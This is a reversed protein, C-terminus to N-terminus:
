VPEFPSIYLPAKSRESLQDKFNRYLDAMHEQAPVRSSGGGALDDQMKAKYIVYSTILEEFLPSVGADLTDASSVLIQPYATYELILGGTESFGPIPRLVLNNGRLYYYPEYTTSGSNQSNNDYDLIVDPKYELRRNVTGQVKYLARISFCDTPLAVTETNLVINLTTTKDFQGEAQKNVIGFIQRIANNAWTTMAAPTYRSNEARPQNLMVRADQILKELTPTVLTAM